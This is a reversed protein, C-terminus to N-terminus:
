RGRAATVLQAARRSDVGTGARGGEMVATGVIVGDAVHLLSAVTDSRAGSGVVLPADPVSSKVATLDTHATAAGTGSGSVVLADALGRHWADSAAEGIEAGHPPSAHKVHVDAMIAVDADLSARTRLTDAASGEILGQDTWMSGTHVNVRIFRAGTAVAVGLAARADNRLANVGVPAGGLAVVEGVALTLAAVSEPPLAGRFFPVDGYNEVMLGDFGADALRMADSRARELVADMSGGWRPSGPLPLLHIMGILFGPKSWIASIGQDRPAPTNM